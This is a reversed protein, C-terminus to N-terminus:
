RQSAARVGVEVVVKGLTKGNRFRRVADPLQDFAFRAGVHPAPLDFQRMEGLLQHMLPARDYLYILNFGLIGKNNEIMAQPDIKPRRLYKWLLQLKNPTDNAQAYRASGYVVMRGMPGLRDYGLQLMNGGICELVLDLPRGDLAADLKQAFASDRVLVHDYGISRCYAKKAGDGVSGLCVGAGLHKALRVAQTGVGGAASHVLVTAGPQLDGLNKLAYYATLGQVLYGAAEAYDWSEPVPIVYEQGINLHTTYAGFRTVGMIREGMRGADVGAGTAVIEGAYELGPTFEGKPTASYLGWIAFVDAFNLGIARVAVTVEGPGPDPLPDAHLRLNSISGATLTYVRRETPMTSTPSHPFVPVPAFPVFFPADVGPPTIIAYIFQQHPCGVFKRGRRNGKREEKRVYWECRDGAATKRLQERENKSVKWPKQIWSINTEGGEPPEDTRGRVPPDGM